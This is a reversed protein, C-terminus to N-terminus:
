GTEVHDRCESPRLSLRRWADVRSEREATQPDDSLEIPVNGLGQHIREGHSHELTADTNCDQLLGTRGRFAIHKRRLSDDFTRKSHFQGQHHGLMSQQTEIVFTLLM